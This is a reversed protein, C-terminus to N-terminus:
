WSIAVFNQFPNLIRHDREKRTQQLRETINSQFTASTKQFQDIKVEPCKPPNSFVNKLDNLSKILEDIGPATHRNRYGIFMWQSTCSM